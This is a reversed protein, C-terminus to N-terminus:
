LSGGLLGVCVLATLIGAGARDAGTIARAPAAADKDGGPFFVHCTLAPTRWHSTIHRHLLLLLYFFFFISFSSSLSEGTGASADGQSTGGSSSSVPSAAQKVLLAGLIELAGMQQGVGASGDYTSNDVWKLGCTNGDAGGSCQLGAAVASAEIYPRVDDWLWPAVKASSAMFRSLYAKFSQQDTNCNNTPECIEQMIMNNTGHFCNRVTANWIGQTRAKWTDASVESASADATTANWMVAAGNLMMGATYTWLTHDLSTCNDDISTGDYIDYNEGILGVHELWDWAKDAWQFYTQNGTYAGLRSALNFLGGNSPTNKYTYGNNWTFIQWRLGGACDASDWRAAQSNFVGQTLALWGPQGADPNEFNLEAASM